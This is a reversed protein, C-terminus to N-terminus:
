KPEHLEKSLDVLKISLQTAPTNSRALVLDCSVRLDKTETAKAGGVAVWLWCFWEASRLRGGLQELM